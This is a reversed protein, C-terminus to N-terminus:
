TRVQTSELDAQSNAAASKEAERQKEEIVAEARQLAATEQHSKNKLLAASANVDLLDSKATELAANLTTTDAIVSGHTLM